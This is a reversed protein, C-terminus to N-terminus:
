CRRPESSVIYMYTARLSLGAVLAATFDNETPSQTGTKITNLFFFAVNEMLKIGRKRVGKVEKKKKM